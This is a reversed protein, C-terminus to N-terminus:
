SLQAEPMPFDFYDFNKFYSKGDRFTPSPPQNFTIIDIVSRTTAWDLLFYGQQGGVSVRVFPAGSLLVMDRRQGHCPNLASTAAPPAQSHSDATAIFILLTSLLIRFTM